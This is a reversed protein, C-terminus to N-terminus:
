GGYTRLPCDELTRIREALVDIFVQPMTDLEEFRAHLEFFTPGTIDWQCGHLNHTQVQYTALLENLESLLAKSRMTDLGHSNTSTPKAKLPAIGMIRFGGCLRYSGKINLIAAYVFVIM